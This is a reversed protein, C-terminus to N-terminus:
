APRGLYLIIPQWIHEPVNKPGTPVANSFAFKPLLYNGSVVSDVSAVVTKRSPDKGWLGDGYFGYGTSGPVPLVAFHGEADRIEDRGWAGATGDAGLVWNRFPAGSKSFEM